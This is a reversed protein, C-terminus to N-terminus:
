SSVEAGPNRRLFERANEEGRARAVWVRAEAEKVAMAAAEVGLEYETPDIRIFAENAAVSGGNRFEPSIWVVRGGVESAIRTKGALTVGGTLEVTLAQETPVPKVVTVAPKLQDLVM